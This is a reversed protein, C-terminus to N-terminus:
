VALWRGLADLDDFQRAGVPLTDSAPGPPRGHPIWVARLGAAHAGAVDESLSDGVHIAEAARVNMQALGAEFMATHPKRWGVEASSLAGNLIPLLDLAALVGRLASHWNSLVGVRIQHFRLDEILRRAQPAVVWAEASDFHRILRDLWDDHRRVLDPIPEAISRTLRWWASRELADSSRLDTGRHRSHAGGWVSAFSARIEADHTVVGCDHACALYSEVVPVRPFVLTFGADFFVARVDTPRPGFPRAERGPATVRVREM